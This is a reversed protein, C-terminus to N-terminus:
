PPNRRLVSDVRKLLGDGDVTASTLSTVSFPSGSQARFNVSLELRLPLSHNFPLRSPGRYNKPALGSGLLGIGQYLELVVAQMTLM